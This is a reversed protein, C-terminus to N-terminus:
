IFLIACSSVFVSLFAGNIDFRGSGAVGMPKEPDYDPLTSSAWSSSFVQQSGSLRNPYDVPHFAPEKTGPVKNHEQTEQDRNGKDNNYNSNGDAHSALGQKEHYVQTSYAAQELVGSQQSVRSKNSSLIAPRRYADDQRVPATPGVVPATLTVQNEGSYGCANCLAKCTTFQVTPITQHACRECPRYELTACYATVILNSLNNPDVITYKVTTVTTQVPLGPHLDDRETSM